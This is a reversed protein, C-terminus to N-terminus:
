WPMMSLRSLALRSKLKLSQMKKQTQIYFQNSWNDAHIHDGPLCFFHNKWLNISSNWTKKRSSRETDQFSPKSIIQENKWGTSRNKGLSRSCPLAIYLIEHSIRNPTPIPIRYPISSWRGHQISLKSWILPNYIKPNLAPFYQWVSPGPKTSYGSAKQCWRCCNRMEPNCTKSPKRWSSNGQRWSWQWWGLHHFFGLYRWFRLDNFFFWSTYPAIEGSENDNGLYTITDIKTRLYSIDVWVGNMGSSSPPRNSIYLLTAPLTKLPPFFRGDKLNNGSICSRTSTTNSKGSFNNKEPFIM